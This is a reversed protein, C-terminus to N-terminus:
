LNNKLRYTMSSPHKRGFLVYILISIINAISIILFMYNYGVLDILAGALGGGVGIGIDYACLFTSNAAGRREPSAINVAMAQLSPEIGGFAYGSLIASIIFTINNPIFALLLFAVFMLVNCSYVFLAEGKKDAVKGITIRTVLLMIAMITFFLGGSLTISDAVSAFKLTYNELTGYTLLFILATVSAPLATKEVLGKISFQKKELELKPTKLFAFLILSIVM